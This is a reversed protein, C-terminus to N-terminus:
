ANRKAKLYEFKGLLFIDIGIHTSVERLSLKANKRLIRLQGGIIM